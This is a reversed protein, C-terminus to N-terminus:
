HSGRPVTDQMADQLSFDPVQQTSPEWQVIKLDLVCISYIVPVLLLTIFTAAALQSDYEQNGRCDIPLSYLFKGTDGSLLMFPVYAVINTITAYVIPKALKTPGSRGGDIPGTLTSFNDRLDEHQSGKTRM